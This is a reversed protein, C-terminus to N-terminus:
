VWPVFCKYRVFSTMVYIVLLHLLSFLLFFFFPLRVEKQNHSIACNVLGLSNETYHSESAEEGPYNLINRQEKSTRCEDLLGLTFQCCQQALALYDKEYEDERLALTELETSLKFTTSFPDNSTNSIYVPNALARYIDLRKQSVKFEDKMCEECKCLVNHPKQVEFGKSLFLNIAEYNGLQAAVILPLFNVPRGCNCSDLSDSEYFGDLNLLEIYHNLTVELALLNFERVANLMANELRHQHNALFGNAESKDGEARSSFHRNVTDLESLRIGNMMGDGNENRLETQWFPRVFGNALDNPMQNETASSALRRAKRHRRKM